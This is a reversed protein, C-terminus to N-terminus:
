LKIILHKSLSNLHMNFIVNLFILKNPAKRENRNIETAIKKCIVYSNSGHGKHMVWLIIKITVPIINKNKAKKFEVLNILSIWKNDRKIVFVTPIIKEM